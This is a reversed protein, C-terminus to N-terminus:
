DDDDDWLVMEEIFETENETTGSFRAGCRPCVMTKERFRAGCQPCESEDLDIYHPHDIRRTEQEGGSGGSKKQGSKGSCAALLVLGGLIVWFWAGM